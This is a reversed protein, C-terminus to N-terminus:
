EEWNKLWWIENEDKGWLFFVSISDGFFSGFLIYLNWIFVKLGSGVILVCLDLFRLVVFLESCFDVIWWFGLVLNFYFVLM